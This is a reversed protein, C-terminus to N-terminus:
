IYRREILTVFEIVHINELDWNYQNKLEGLRQKAETDNSFQDLEAIQKNYAEANNGFLNSIFVFRQNLSIHGALNRIPQLQMRNAVSNSFQDHYNKNISSDETLEEKVPEVSRDTTKEEPQSVIKEVIPETM